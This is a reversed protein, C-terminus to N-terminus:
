IFEAEKLVALAAEKDEPAVMVIPGTCGMGSTAYIGKKWLAQVADELQLIEIGPIDATVPKAPPATVTETAAAPAPAALSELM